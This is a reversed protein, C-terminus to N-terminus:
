AGLKKILQDIREFPLRNNTQKLQELYGIASNQTLITSEIMQEIVWISGHVEIKHHNAEKRLKQDCTLLIAKTNIAKWLMSKDAISRISNKTKFNSIIEMDEANANYISLRNSRVFVEFESKQNQQLIENYVIDTTIIEWDLAFFEPLLKIEFLDFFVSVDTVVLKM